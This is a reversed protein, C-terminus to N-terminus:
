VLLITPLTLQTYSVTELSTESIQFVYSTKADNKAHENWSGLPRGRLRLSRLALGTSRPSM